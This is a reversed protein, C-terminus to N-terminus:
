KIKTLLFVCEFYPILFCLKLVTSSYTEFDGFFSMAISLLYHLFSFTSLSHLLCHWYREREWKGVFWHWMGHKTTIESKSLQKRIKRKKMKRQYRLFPKKSQQEEQIEISKKSWLLAFAEDSRSNTCNKAFKQQRIVRSKTIFFIALM